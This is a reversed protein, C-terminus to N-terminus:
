AQKGRKAERSARLHDVPVPTEVNQKAEGDYQRQDEEEQQDFPVATVPVEQRLERRKRAYAETVEFVSPLGVTGRVLGALTM